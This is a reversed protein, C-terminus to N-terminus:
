IYNRIAIVSVMVMFPFIILKTISKQLGSHAASDFVCVTKALKFTTTTPEFGVHPMSTQTQPETNTNDQTYVAAKLSASRGDL